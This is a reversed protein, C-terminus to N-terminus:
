ELDLVPNPNEVAIEIPHIGRFCGPFVRAEISDSKSTSTENKQCKRPLYIPRRFFCSKWNLTLKYCNTAEDGPIKQASEKQQWPRWLLIQANPVKIWRTTRHGLLIGLFPGNKAFAIFKQPDTIEWLNAPNQTTCPFLWLAVHIWFM